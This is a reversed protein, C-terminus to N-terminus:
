RALWRRYVLPDANTSRRQCELAKKVPLLGGSRQFHAPNNHVRCRLLAILSEGLVQRALDTIDQFSAM